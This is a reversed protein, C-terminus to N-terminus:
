RTEVLVQAARRPANKGGANRRGKHRMRGATGRVFAARIQVAEVRANNCGTFVGPAPAQRASGTRPLRYGRAAGRVAPVKGGSVRQAGKNSASFVRLPSACNFWICYYWFSSSAIITQHAVMSIPLTTVSSDPSFAGFMAQHRLPM